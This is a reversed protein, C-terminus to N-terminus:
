HPRDSRDTGHVDFEILVDQGLRTVRSPEHPPTVLRSFMPALPVGSGLTRPTVVWQARDILEAEALADHLAPGGEVLLTVVERAALRELASRLDRTEAAEVIVGRAELAATRGPDAELARRTVMMIVPGSDLTSFVRATPPIRGRWDFLVRVLPRHRYAGRATLEPDDALVTGSGVAIADIESRQRHFHRDAEPGTLRVRVTSQGVFRDRSTAVKAIVFPRRRAIWTFFPANLASAREALIGSTVEVGHERLYAFGQGAVRPNPDTVAGVVRRIGAAVIPEVCPGTRRDGVHSCPELTCYLTGGRARSGAAGLAVVEAHPGGAAMHAGQGVVVGDPSVVVAGVIPNPTTRGRGREAWFLAREMFVVDVDRDATVV